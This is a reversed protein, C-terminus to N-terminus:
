KFPSGVIVRLGATVAMAVLVVGMMSAKNWAAVAAAAVGALRPDLMSEGRKELTTVVILASFLAAPLLSVVPGMHQEAIKGFTTVGLIRIGYSGAALAIIM